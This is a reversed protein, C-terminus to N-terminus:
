GDYFIIVRWHSDWCETGSYDDPIVPKILPYKGNEWVLMFMNMLEQTKEHNLVLFPM